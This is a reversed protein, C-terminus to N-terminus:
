EEECRRGTSTVVVSLHSSATKRFRPPQGQEHPHSERLRWRDPAAARRSPGRTPLDPHHATPDRAVFGSTPPDMNDPPLARSTRAAPANTNSPTAALVADAIAPALAVHVPSRLLKGLLTPTKVPVYLPLTWTFPAQATVAPGATTFPFRVSCGPAVSTAANLPPVSVTVPLRRTWFPAVSIAPQLGILKEHTSSGVAVVGIQTPPLRIAFWDSPSTRCLVVITPFSVILPPPPPSSQTEVGPTKPSNWDGAYMSLSSPATLPLRVILLTWVQQNPVSRILTPPLRILVLLVDASGSPPSTMELTTPALMMQM